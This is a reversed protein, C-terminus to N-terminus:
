FPNARMLIMEDGAMYVVPLNITLISYMPLSYVEIIYISVHRSIPSKFALAHNLVFVKELLQFHSVSTPTV